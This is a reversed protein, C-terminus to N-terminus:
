SLWVMSNEKFVINIFNLCKQTYHALFGQKLKASYFIELILTKKGHFITLFPWFYLFVNKKLYFNFKLQTKINFINKSDSSIAGKKGAIKNSIKKLCLIKIFKTGFPV